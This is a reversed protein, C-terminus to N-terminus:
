KEETEGAGLLDDLSVAESDEGESQLEKLKDQVKELELVQKFKEPNRKAEKKISAVPVGFAEAVAQYQLKPSIKRPAWIGDQWQPIVDEKLKSFRFYNGESAHQSVRGSALREFANAMLKRQVDEPFDLPNVTFSEVTFKEGNEDQDSLVVAIPEGRKEFGDKHYNISATKEAM